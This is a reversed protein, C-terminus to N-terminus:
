RPAFARASERQRELRQSEEIRRDEADVVEKIRAVHRIAFGVAVLATVAWFISAGM